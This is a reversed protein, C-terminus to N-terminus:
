SSSELRMEREFSVSCCPHESALKPHTLEPLASLNTPETIDRTGDFAMMTLLDVWFCIALGQWFWFPHASELLSTQDISFWTVWAVHTNDGVWATLRSHCSRIM